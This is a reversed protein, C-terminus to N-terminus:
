EPSPLTKISRLAHKGQQPGNRVDVAYYGTSCMRYVCGVLVVHCRVIRLNHSLHVGVLVENPIASIQPSFQIYRHDLRQRAESSVNM